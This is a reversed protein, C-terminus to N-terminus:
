PFSPRTLVLADGHEVCGDPGGPGADGAQAGTPLHDAIVEHAGPQAAWECGGGCPLAAGDAHVKTLPRATVGGVGFPISSSALEPACAQTECSANHTVDESLGTSLCCYFM